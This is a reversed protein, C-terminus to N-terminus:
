QLVAGFSVPECPVTRASKSAQRWAMSRLSCTRLVDLQDFLLFHEQESLVELRSYGDIGVRLRGRAARVGGCEGAMRGYGAARDTGRRGGSVDRLVGSV